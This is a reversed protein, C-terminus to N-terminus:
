FEQIFKIANELIGFSKSRFVTVAKWQGKIKRDVSTSWLVRYPRHVHESRVHLTVTPDTMSELCNLSCDIWQERLQDPYRAAIDRYKQEWPKLM